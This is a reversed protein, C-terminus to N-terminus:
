EEADVTVLRAAVVVTAATNVDSERDVEAVVVVVAAGANEACRVCARRPLVLARRMWDPVGSITESAPPLTM